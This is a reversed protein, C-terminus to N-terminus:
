TEQALADLAAALPGSASGNSNRTLARRITEPDAGCQIAISFVIAADRANVDAASNSKHNNLFLERIQGDTLGATCTYKLGGVEFDFTVNPRRNSLRQRPSMPKIGRIRRWLCTDDQRQILWWGDGDPPWPRPDDISNKTNQHEIILASRSVMVPNIKRPATMSDAGRRLAPGAIAGAPGDKQTLMTRRGRLKRRRRQRPCRHAAPEGLIIERVFQSPERAPPLATGPPLLELWLWGFDPPLLDDCL